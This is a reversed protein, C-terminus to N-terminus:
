FLIVSILFRLFSDLPCIEHTWFFEARTIVDLQGIFEM